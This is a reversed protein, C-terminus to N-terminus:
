PVSPQAKATILSGKMRPLPMFQYIFGGKLIEPVSHRLQNNCRAVLRFTAAQIESPTVPFKRKNLWIPRVIATPNFWGKVSIFVLIKEPLLPQWHTPSVVKGGKHASQRSIQSGWVEPDRRAQGPRYHCQKVKLRPNLFNTTKHTSWELQVTKHKLGDSSRQFM